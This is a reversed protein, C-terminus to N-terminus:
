RAVEAWLPALSELVRPIEYRERVLQAGYAGDSAARAPDDLYRALSRAAAEADGFPVVAGGGHRVEEALAVGDTVVVPREQQWGEVVVRSFAEYRSPVLVVDAARYARQLDALSLRGLSRVGEAAALPVDGPLGVMGLQADPRRRRLAAIAEAAYDLGKRHDPRGAVCLVLPGDGLGLRARLGRAEADDVRPTAPV